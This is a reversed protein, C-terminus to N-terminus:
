EEYVSGRNRLFVNMKDIDSTSLVHNLFAINAEHAADILDRLLEANTLSAGSLSARAKAVEDRPTQVFYSHM